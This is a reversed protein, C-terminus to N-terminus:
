PTSRVQSLFSAGPRLNRRHSSAPRHDSYTSAANDKRCLAYSCGTRRLRYRESIMTRGGQMDLANRNDPGVRAIKKDREVRARRIQDCIRAACDAHLEM